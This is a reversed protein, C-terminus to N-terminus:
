KEDLGYKRLLKRYKETKIFEPFRRNFLKILETSEKKRAFVVYFDLSNDLVAIRKVIKRSEPHSLLFWQIAATYHVFAQIKGAGLDKFMNEEAKWKKYYVAKGDKAHKKQYADFEDSHSYDRLFGTKHRSLSDPGTYKLADGSKLYVASRLSYLPYRPAPFEPYDAKSMGIYAQVKNLKIQKAAHNWGCYRFSLRYEKQPYIEKLVEVAFGPSSSKLDCFFPPLYEGHFILEKPEASLSVFLFFLLVRFCRIM